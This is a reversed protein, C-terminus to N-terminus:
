KDILEKAAIMAADQFSNPSDIISQLKDKSYDKFKSKYKEILRNKDDEIETKSKEPIIKSLFIRAGKIDLIVLLILALFSIPQFGLFTLGGISFSVFIDSHTFQLANFTGVVLALGLIM